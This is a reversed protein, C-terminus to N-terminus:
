VKRWRRIGLFAAVVSVVSWLWFKRTSVLRETKLIPNDSKM